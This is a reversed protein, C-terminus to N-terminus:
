SGCQERGSGHDSRDRQRCLSGILDSRLTQEIRVLLGAVPKVVVLIKGGGAKGAKRVDVLAVDLVELDCPGHVKGADLAAADPGMATEFAGRDDFVAHHVDGVSPARDVLDVGM